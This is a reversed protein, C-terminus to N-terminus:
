RKFSLFLFKLLCIIYRIINKTQLLGEKHMSLMTEKSKRWDNQQYFHGFANARVRFMNYKISKAYEPPLISLMRSYFYIYDKQYTIWNFNQSAGNQHVRYVAWHGNIHFFSGKLSLMLFTPFDGFPLGRLFDLSSFIRKRYVVSCTAFLNAATGNDILDRTSIYKKNLREQKETKGNCLVLSSHTVAAVSPCANLIKLQTAIKTPWIWFDDGECLAIFDGTCHTYADILNEIAGLNKKRLIPKFSINPAHENIAGLIIDQTSDKSADDAIIVELNFNGTQKKIGNITELIFNEHNYSLVIVSVTQM